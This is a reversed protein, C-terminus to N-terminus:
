GTRPQFMQDALDAVEELVSLVSARVVQYDDVTGLEMEKTIRELIEV